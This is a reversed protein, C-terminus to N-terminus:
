YNRTPVLINSFGNIYLYTNLPYIILSKNYWSMYNLLFYVKSTNISFKNTLEVLSNMNYWHKM